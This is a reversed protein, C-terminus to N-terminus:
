AEYAISLHKRLANKFCSITKCTMVSDPLENWERPARCLFAAPLAKTRPCLHELRAGGARMSAYRLKLGFADPSASTYGHVCKFTSLMDHYLRRNKLSELQLMKPRKSYSMDIYGRIRKAYRRQVREILDRTAANAPSWVAVAYELTPRVYAVFLHKLFDPERTSFIKLVMGALRSAKLAVSRTHPEYSATDSRYVGLDMCGNGIAIM